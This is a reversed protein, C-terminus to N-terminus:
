EREAWTDNYVGMSDQKAKEYVDRSVGELVREEIERQQGPTVNIVFYEDEMGGHPAAEIIAMHRGLLAMHDCMDVAKDLDMTQNFTGKYKLMGM